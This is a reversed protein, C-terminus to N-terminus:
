GSEEQHINSNNGPGEQYLSPRRAKMPRVPARHEPVAVLSSSPSFHSQSKLTVGMPSHPTKAEWVSTKRSLAQPPKKHTPTPHTHNTIIKKM